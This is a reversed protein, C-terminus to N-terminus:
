AAKSHQRPGFRRDYLAEFATANNQWTEFDVNLRELIPPLHDPISGRKDDRIARGTMDVLTLYDNESILLGEQPAATINGEFPLLPKLPQSFAMLPNEGDKDTQTKVAEALDFQQYLREKISTHDSHEPTKAMGARIPNLDVYAMCSLLAEETLLPQSKFRSEWFHGTCHDERNAQRAIPQNLCKMFESISCLKKRYLAILEALLPKEASSLESGKVYNQLLLPGKYLCRWRRIIEDDSIDDLITPEYLKVVLHYHNNMIAYAAIDIEFISALLRLRQEIMLRRHEFCRGTERDYGCLFTRRVCRSVIHYYPTEPISIQEKRPRPM